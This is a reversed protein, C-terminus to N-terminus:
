SRPSLRELAKADVLDKLSAQASGEVHGRRARRARKARRRVLLLGALLWPAPGGAADCTCGGGLGVDAGADDTTSGGGAAASDDDADTPQPGGADTPGDSSEAGTTDEAPAPEDCVVPVGTAEGALVALLTARHGTYRRGQPDRVEVKLLLNQKVAEPLPTFPLEFSEGTVAVACAFPHWTSPEDALAWSATLTSGPMASVCGRVPLTADAAVAEEESTLALAPPSAAADPGDVVQVVGRRMWWRNFAPEWTYGAVVHPGPTVDTTDWLVPVSAAAESIPRREDDGTIRTWCSQWVDSSTLVDDADVEDPDVLGKAAAAAVDMFSIWSPLVTVADHDRCLALFQHRRSDDVEEAPVIQDEYPISYTLALVPDVSRDVITM